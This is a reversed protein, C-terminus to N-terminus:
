VCKILGAREGSIVAEWEKRERQGTISRVSAASQHANRPVFLRLGSGMLLFDPTKSEAARMPEQPQVLSTRPGHCAGTCKRPSGHQEASALQGPPCLELGM